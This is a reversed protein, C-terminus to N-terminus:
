SEFQIRLFDEYTVKGDKNHDMDEIKKQITPNIKIGLDRLGDILESKTASGSNDTDFM